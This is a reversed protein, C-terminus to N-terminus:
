RIIPLNSYSSIVNIKNQCDGRRPIENLMSAKKISEIIKQIRVTHVHIKKINVLASLSRAVLNHKASRQSNQKNKSMKNTKKTIYGIM